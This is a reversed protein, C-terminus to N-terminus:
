EKIVRETGSLSQESSHTSQGCFTVDVLELLICAYQACVSAQECVVESGAKKLQHSGM